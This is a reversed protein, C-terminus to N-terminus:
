EFIIKTSISKIKLAHIILSTIHKKQAHSIFTSAYKEIKLTLPMYKEIKINKIKNNKMNKLILSLKEKDFKIKQFNKIKLILNFLNEIGFNYKASIFVYETQKKIYNKIKNNIKKLDNKNKIDSKNISIILSKEQKKIYNIIEVDQSTIENEIILIIIDSIKIANLANKILIEDIKSKVNTRKKIGPTDIIKYTNGRLIFNSKIIDRTTGPTNDVILNNSKTIKNILSSKGANPKGVVAIKLSYDIDINETLKTNKILEELLTDIGIQKKISINITKKIKLIKKINELESSHILEIKNIVYIITKKLRKIINLITINNTIDKDTADIMLILTDSFKIREWTNRITKYDLNTKEYGIGATDILEFVKSKIKTICSICDRTYGEYDITTSEKKKTILNFLSSKGVNKKGVIIIKEM